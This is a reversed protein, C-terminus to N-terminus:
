IHGCGMVYGADERHAVEPCLLSGWVEWSGQKVMLKEKFDHVHSMM